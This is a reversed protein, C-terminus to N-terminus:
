VELSLFMLIAVWIFMGPLYSIMVAREAHSHSLGDIRSLGYSIMLIYVAQFLNFTQLPVIWIKDVDTYSFLNGLSLPYFFGIDMLDYNGAFLYFWLFKILSAILFIIESAIVIGWVNKFTVKEPINILLLGSYIVIAVFLTKTFLTFPIIVYGIWSVEKLNQFLEMARDYTLQESYTNYFVIDNILLSSSLLLLAIHAIVLGLFLGTKNLRFYKEVLEM